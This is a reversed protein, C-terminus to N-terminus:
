GGYRESLKERVGSPASGADPGHGIPTAAGTHADTGAARLEDRTRRRRAARDSRARRPPGPHGAVADAPDAGPEPPAGTDATTASAQEPAISGRRRARVEAVIFYGVGLPAMIGFALWQLGYSLYPGSELQPLPIEGLAGPQRPSLQVYFPDMATGTATGLEAPDITYVSWVGDIQRAARDASTGEAARIRGSVTIEGGPSAPIAPARGEEPRVYGRNILVVRDSGAIRFPTLVEIAPRDSVSRLRALAQQQPLYSGTLSVERWETSPDFGAGAPAVQEIPETATAVAEKILDNRQSTSSSKGLQWPALVSFCLAAFAVVVVVLALWGPRLM